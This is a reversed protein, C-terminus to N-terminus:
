SPPEEKKEPQTPESPTLIMVMSRGELKPLADIKSLAELDTRLRELLAEGKEKHTLERGRFQLVIKVKNGQSLFKEANRKKVQYDHEEIKVRFQLEKLEVIKQKKKLEAQKKREEYKFKGYNLIKCVPPVSQPAIEVLDLGSDRARRLAEQCSIIGLMDGASDICRVKAADIEENVRLRKSNKDQTL